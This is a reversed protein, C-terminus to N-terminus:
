YQIVQNRFKTAKRIIDHPGSLHVCNEGVEEEVDNNHSNNPEGNGWNTYAAESWSEAWVWGEGPTRGLGIWYAVGSHLPVLSEIVQQEAASDIELLYGGMDRCYQQSQYWTMSVTSEHYCSGGEGLIWGPVDEPCAQCGGVARLYAIVYLLMTLCASGM